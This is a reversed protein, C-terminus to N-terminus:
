CRYAGGAWPSWGAARYLRWAMLVNTVPDYRRAWSDRMTYSHIGNIQFLGHDNTRSVARPNWGSERKVICYARPAQPGWLKQIKQRAQAVTSAHAVTTLALLIMSTLTITLM